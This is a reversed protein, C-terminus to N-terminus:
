TFMQSHNEYRCRGLKLQKVHAPPAVRVGVGMMFIHDVLDNELLSGAASFLIEQANGDLAEIRDLVVIRWGTVQAFWVQHALAVLIREGDSLQKFPTWGLEDRRIELRADPLEFRAEMDWLGLIGNLEGTLEEMQSALVKIQLGKPGFFECLENLCDRELKAQTLEDTLQRTKNCYETWRHRDEMREKLDQERVKASEIQEQLEEPSPPKEMEQFAQQREALMRRAEVLKGASALKARMGAVFKKGAHIRDMPVPELGQLLDAAQAKLKGAEERQLEREEAPIEQGCTGCHAPSADLAKAQNTLRSAQVEAEQYRRFQQELRSLKDEAKALTAELREPDGLNQELEKVRDSLRTVDAQVRHYERLDARRKAWDHRLKDLESQLEKWGTVEDAFPPANEEADKLLETRRKIDRNVQSRANYCSRHMRGLNNTLEGCYHLAVKMIPYNEGVREALETRVLQTTIRIGLLEYLLAKQAKEDLGFFRGSRIALRAMDGTSGAVSELRAQGDTLSLDNSGSLSISHPKVNRSIEGGFGEPAVSVWGDGQGFRLLDGLQDERGLSYPNKGSVWFELAGALTSKGAGNPGVFLMCPELEFKRHEYCRFNHLSLTKIKM